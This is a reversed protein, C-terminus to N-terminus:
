PTKKRVARRGAEALPAAAEHLAREPPAMVEYRNDGPLKKLDDGRVGPNAGLIARKDGVRRRQVDWGQKASQGIVRDCSADFGSMGTNQPGAGRAEAAYAM